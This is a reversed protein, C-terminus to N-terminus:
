PAARDKAGGAAVPHDVITAISPVRAGPEDAAALDAPQQQQQTSPPPTTSSPPPSPSSSSSSSTSSSMSASAGAADEPPDQRPASSVRKQAAASSRGLSSSRAVAHTQPRQRQQPQQQQQQHQQQWYGNKSMVKHRLAMIVEDHSLKRKKPDPGDVPASLSVDTTKAERNIIRVSLGSVAPPVPRRDGANPPPRQPQAASHGSSHGSPAYASPHHVPAGLPMKFFAFPNQAARGDLGGPTDPHHYARASGATAAATATAAAAPEPPRQVAFPAPAVVHAPAAHFAHPHVQPHPPAVPGIPSHLVVQQQQQQQKFYNEHLMMEFEIRRTEFRLEEQLRREHEARARDEEAKAALVARLLDAQEGYREVIQALSLGSSGDQGAVVLAGVPQAGPLTRVERIPPQGERIAPQGERIAPQSETPAAPAADSRRARRAEQARTRALTM